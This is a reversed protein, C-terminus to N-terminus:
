AALASQLEKMEAFDAEAAAVDSKQLTLSSDLYKRSGMAYMIRTLKEAAMLCLLHRKPLYYVDFKGDFFHSDRLLYASRVYHVSYELEDLLRGYCGHLGRFYDVVEKLSKCIAKLRVVEADLKATEHKLAKEQAQVNKLTEDAKKRTGFGLTLIAKLNTRIPSRDFDIKFLKERSPIKGMKMTSKRAIERFNVDDITWHAFVATLRMFRDFDQEQLKRRFVNIGEIHGCTEEHLEKAKKDFSKQLKDARAVLADLRKKAEEFKKQGTFSKYGSATAKGVKKGTEVVAGKVRRVGSFVAAGCAKIGSLIGM